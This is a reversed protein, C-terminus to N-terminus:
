TIMKQPPNLIYDKDPKYRRMGEVIKCNRQNVNKENPMAGKNKNLLNYWYLFTFDIDVYSVDFKWYIVCFFEYVFRPFGLINASSSLANLFRCPMLDASSHDLTVPTDLLVM